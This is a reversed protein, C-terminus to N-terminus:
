KFYPGPAPRQGSAPELYHFYPECRAYNEQKTTYPRYFWWYNKRLCYATQVRKGHFFGAGDRGAQASSHPVVALLGVAAIAAIVLRVGFM